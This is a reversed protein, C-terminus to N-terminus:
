AASGTMIFGAAYLLTCITKADTIDGDRIRALADSMTLIVPEIFEDHDLNGTGTTCDTAMFLRIQEDTFGPTTFITTMFTMSGAVLGTEEELERRACLEWDEGTRDPRGAPVELMFGGSAYRYQRILLIQPDAGQPDSLVPLVAAAGSHRVMEIEGTSGDPFRVTDIALNVIRGEHVPRSDLRGVEGDPEDGPRTGPEDGPRTGPEDGPRAGSEDGPRAGPEDGPRAGSEDGPWAGPEDGPRTGPEDGPRKGPEDGPRTGPEDGPRADSEDEHANDHEENM